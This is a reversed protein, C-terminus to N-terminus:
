GRGQGEGGIEGLATVLADLEERTNMETACLLMHGELKPYARGLDYGGIIQYDEYLIRNIEEWRGPPESWLSM